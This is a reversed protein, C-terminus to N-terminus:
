LPPILQASVPEKLTVIPPTTDSPNSSPPLSRTPDLPFADNLDSVSDGDTDARFPDTGNQRETWNMVGDSDADAPDAGSREDHGDLVGNDNSDPNLPDTGLLYERWTDLGDHDADTTLWTNDALTLGTVTVVTNNSSAGGNGLKDGNSGAARVTGDAVGALTYEVGAALMLVGSFDSHQPVMFTGGGSVASSGAAIGLGQGWGWIRASGDISLGFTAGAAVQRNALTPLLAPTTRDVLDGQGLQGWDNHGWAAIRGDAQLAIAFDGSPAASIAVANGIGIVKTPTHRELTSGDGLQGLHNRGWSWLTGSGAGDTQLAYSSSHGAAIAVIGTLGVVQVATWQNATNGIGLQGSDNAGYGWVTGDSKLVLTHNTGTAVAIANTVGTAQVPTQANGSTGGNGLKGGAAAGAGWVTGDAKAIVTHTM